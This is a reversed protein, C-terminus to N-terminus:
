ALWRHECKTLDVWKADQAAGGPYVLRVRGDAGFRDIHWENWPSAASERMEIRRPQGPELELERIDLKVLREANLPQRYEDPFTIDGTPQFRLRYPFNPNGEEIGDEGAKSFDSIGVQM